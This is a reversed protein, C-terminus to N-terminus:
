YGGQVGAPMSPAVSANNIAMINDYLVDIDDATFDVDGLMPFHVRLYGAKAIEGKYVNKLIDIDIMGQDNSIHLTTFLPNSLLTDVVKNNQNLYLALAGASIIRKLSTPPYQSLVTKDLFNSLGPIISTKHVMM